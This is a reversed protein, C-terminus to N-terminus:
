VHGARLRLRAARLSARKRPACRDGNAPGHATHLFQSQLGVVDQPFARPPWAVHLFRTFRLGVGRRAVLVCENEFSARNADTVLPAYMLDGQIITKFDGGPQVYHALTLHEFHSIAENSSYMGQAVIFAACRPVPPTPFAGCGPMGHLVCGCVM